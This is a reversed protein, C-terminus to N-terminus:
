KGIARRTKFYHLTEPHRYAVVGQLGFTTSFPFCTINVCDFFALGLGVRRTWYWAYVAGLSMLARMQAFLVITVAISLLIMADDAYIRRLNDSEVKWFIFGALATGLVWRVIGLWFTMRLHSPM